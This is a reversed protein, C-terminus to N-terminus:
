KIRFKMRSLFLYADKRLSRPVYDVLIDAEQVAKKVQKGASFMGSKLIKELVDVIWGETPKESYLDKGEIWVRENRAYFRLGHSSFYLPGRKISVIPRELRDVELFIFNRGYDIGLVKFGELELQRALGKATKEVQPLLLDDVIDPPNFLLTLLHTGKRKLENLYNGPTVRPFFFEQSPNELFKKANFYFLGYREWSLNAAVNRRPDVPDIVVLPKDEEIERKVTKMAIEPERKLWNGPDIVKQRLMFDHKELVELFSGFKIVLIEALYGSFGRVYIESGYANIGKLFKKFLRVEDNRGSLNELVWRTHLISRDVATKVDRWDRVDYCPVLDVQFGKYYARVYPHEAYAVEYRDLDEAIRKALELGKERLVELPTDLPFALFLDIDHDGRLFTDKELSGVFYPKVELGLEESSSKVLELLYLRVENLERYDEERPKIRELVQSLLEMSIM